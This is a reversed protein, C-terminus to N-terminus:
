AVLYNTRISIDYALYDFNYDMEASVFVEAAQVIELLAMHLNLFQNNMCGAANIQRILM